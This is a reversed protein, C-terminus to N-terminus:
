LFEVDIRDVGLRIMKGDLYGYEDTFIDDEIQIGCDLTNGSLKGILTYRFCSGEQIISPVADEQVEFPSFDDVVFLYFGVRYKGGVEIPYPCVSAFCTVLYGQVDLLVQEEVDEDIKLVVADFTIMM